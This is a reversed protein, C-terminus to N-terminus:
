HPSTKRIARPKFVTGQHAALRRVRWCKRMKVPKKTVEPETEEEELTETTTLTMGDLVSPLESRAGFDTMTTTTMPDTWPPIDMWLQAVNSKSSSWPSPLLDLVAEEEAEEELAALAEDVDQTSLDQEEVDEGAEEGEPMAKDPLRQGCPICRMPQPPCPMGPLPHHHNAAKRTTTTM